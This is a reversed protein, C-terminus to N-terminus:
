RCLEKITMGAFPNDVYKKKKIQWAEQMPKCNLLHSRHIRCNFVDDITFPIEGEEVEVPLASGTETQIVVLRQNCFECRGPKLKIDSM